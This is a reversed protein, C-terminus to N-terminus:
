VEMAAKRLIMKKLTDVTMLADDYILKAMEFGEECQKFVFGEQGGLVFNHLIIKMPDGLIVDKDMYLEDKTNSIIIYKHGLGNESMEFNCAQGNKPKFKVMNFEYSKHLGTRFFAMSDWDDVKFNLGEVRKIFELLKTRERQYAKFDRLQQKNM